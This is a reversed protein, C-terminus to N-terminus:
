LFGLSLLIITGLKTYWANDKFKYDLNVHETNASKIVYKALVNHGYWEAALGYTTRNTKKNGNEDVMNTIIKSILIREYRSDIKYSNEIYVNTENITVSDKGTITEIAKKAEAENYSDEVSKSAKHGMIASCVHNAISVITTIGTLAALVSHEFPWPTDGNEDVYM